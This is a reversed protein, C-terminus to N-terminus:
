IWSAQKFYGFYSGVKDNWTGFASISYSKLNPIKKWYTCASKDFAIAKGGYNGHEFLVVTFDEFATGNGFTQITLSSLKDNNAGLSPVRFGLKYNVGTYGQQYALDSSLLGSGFTTKYTMYIDNVLPLIYQSSSSYNKNKYFSAMVYKNGTCTSKLSIKGNPNRDIAYEQRTKYFKMSNDDRVLLVSEKYKENLERLFSNDESEIKQYEDTISNYLYSVNLTQGDVEIQQKVTEFNNDTLEEKNCSFLIISM